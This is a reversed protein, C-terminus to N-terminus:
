PLYAILAFSCFCSWGEKMDALSITCQYSSIIMGCGEESKYRDCKDGCDSRKAGGDGRWGSNGLIMYVCIASFGGRLEPCIFRFGVSASSALM